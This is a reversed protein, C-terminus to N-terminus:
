ALGSDSLGAGFGLAFYGCLASAFGLVGFGDPGLRRAVLTTTAFAVLRFLLEGGGLAAIARPVAGPPELDPSTVETLM